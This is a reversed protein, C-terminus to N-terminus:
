EYKKIKNYMKELLEWKEENRMKEFKTRIQEMLFLKRPDIEVKPHHMHYIENRPLTCTEFIEFVEAKLWFFIDEPAYSEFYYPDYGGIRFFLERAVCVSGGPAGYAISGDPRFPPNVGPTKISLNDIPFKDGLIETTVREDLYLVRRDSFTQIAKCKKKSINDFVRIFFDSQVLCDVDHFILFPTKHTFFVAVNMAFCKNFPELSETWIYDVDLSKATERHEPKSSNESVTLNVRRGFRRAATKVSELTKELFDIRGRVPIIFNVEAGESNRIDLIGRAVSGDYDIKKSELLVELQVSQETYGPIKKYARGEKQGWRMWHTVAGGEDFIGAKLLDQNLKLYWEWSFDEPIYRKPQDARSLDQSTLPTTKIGKSRSGM